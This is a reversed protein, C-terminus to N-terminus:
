GVSPTGRERRLRTFGGEEVLVDELARAGAQAGLRIGEVAMANPVCAMASAAPDSMAHLSNLFAVFDLAGEEYSEAEGVVFRVNRLGSEAARGRAAAIAAASSDIGVFESGPFAQALMLTSGGYGCGVDGLARDLFSNLGIDRETM